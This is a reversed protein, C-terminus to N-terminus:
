AIAECQVENSSKQFRISTQKQFCRLESRVRYRYIKVQLELWFASPLLASHHRWVDLFVVHGAVGGSGVGSIHSISSMRVLWMESAVCVCM